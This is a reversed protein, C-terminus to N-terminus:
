TAPANVLGYYVDKPKKYGLSLHPRENNYLWVAEDVARSAQSFRVFCDGLGYEIKLIGNVREALANEYCNGVQGMSSNMSYSVLDDRYTHCTYQVGHDSHHIVGKSAGKAAAVAMSLARQAGDVSLSCSIDYGLICRSFADTVLFLYAYREETEVYTIDSVWAQNPQVVMIDKLLNVSRWSGPWTTRRKRRRYRVLLGARRLLDFFRDRGIVLGARVMKEKLEHLLKRGGMRPHKQRKAQVMKVVKEELQAQAKHRARQQYHAQRSIGYWGCLREVSV